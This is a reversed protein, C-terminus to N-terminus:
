ESDIVAATLEGRAASDDGEIRLFQQTAGSPNANNLTVTVIITLTL